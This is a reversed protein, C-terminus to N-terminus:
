YTGFAEPSSGPFLGNEPTFFKFLHPFNLGVNTGGPGDENYKGDKDDDIGESYLKYIGKEGKSPDAKKMLRPDSTVPLWEGEPSKVRMMTILGNGDLDNYGDENTQDDQDDNVQLIM